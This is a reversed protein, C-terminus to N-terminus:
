NNGLNRTNELPFRLVNNSVTTSDAADSWRMRIVDVVPVLTSWRFRRICITGYTNTITSTIRVTSRTSTETYDGKGRRPAFRLIPLWTTRTPFACLFTSDTAVAPAPLAFWPVFMAAAVATTELLSGSWWLECVCNKGISLRALTCRGTRDNLGAGSDQYCVKRKIDKFFKMKKESFVTSTCCLNEIAQKCSNLFVVCQWRKLIIKMSISKDACHSISNM